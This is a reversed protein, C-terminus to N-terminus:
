GDPGDRSDYGDPGHVDWMILIVGSRLDTLEWEWTWDGSRSPTKLDRASRDSCIDTCGHAPRKPTTTSRPPSTAQGVVGTTSRPSTWATSWGDIVSKDAALTFTRTRPRDMSARTSTSSSLAPTRLVTGPNHLVQRGPAGGQTQVPIPCPRGRERLRGQRGIHGPQHGSLAQRGPAKNAESLTKYRIEFEDYRRNRRAFVVERALTAVTEARITRPPGKYSAGPGLRHGPKLDLTREHFPRIAIDTTYREIEFRHPHGPADLLAEKFASYQLADRHRPQLVTFHNGPLETYERFPGEASATSVITDEQGRFAVFPIPIKSESVETADLIQERVQSVMKHVDEDLTRLGKEQPNRVLSFLLKRAGAVYNSGRNPTAFLIVQRIDTLSHGRGESIRATLFKQIVLGGQSHGVLVIDRDVYKMHGLETALLEACSGLSPIEEWPNWSIWSTAYEFYEFDFVATLEPDPADTEAGEILHRFHQWCGADSGFGHVFVM